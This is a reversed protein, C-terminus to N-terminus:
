LVPLAICFEKIHIYDQNYSKMNLNSQFMIQKKAARVNIDPQIIQMFSEGYFTQTEFADFAGM